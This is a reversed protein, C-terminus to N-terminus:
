RDKGRGELCADATYQVGALARAKDLIELVFLTEEHPYPSPFCRGVEIADVTALLEFEYGGPLSFQEVVTGQADYRVLGLYENARELCLYGKEGYLYGM